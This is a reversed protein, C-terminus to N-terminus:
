FPHAGGMGLGGWSLKFGVQELLDRMIEKALSKNGTKHILIPDSITEGVSMKPNLCALPDQFVMQISQRAQKLEKGQMGM